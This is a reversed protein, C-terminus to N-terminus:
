HEAIVTARRRLAAAVSQEANFTLKMTPANEQQKATNSIDLDESILDLVEESSLGAISNENIHTVVDGLMTGQKGAAYGVHAVLVRKEGPMEIQVDGDGDMVMRVRNNNPRKQTVSKGDYGISLKSYADMVTGDWDSDIFRLEFKDGGGIEIVKPMRVPIPYDNQIQTRRTIGRRQVRQEVQRRHEPNQRRRRQEPHPLLSRRHTTRADSAEEMLGLFSSKKLLTKKNKKVLKRDSPTRKLATKDNKFVDKAIIFLVNAAEALSSPEGSTMLESIYIREEKSMFYEMGAFLTPDEGVVKRTCFKPIPAPPSHFSNHAGTELDAEFGIEEIFIDGYKEEEQFRHIETGLAKAELRRAEDIADRVEKTHLISKLLLQSETLETGPTAHIVADAKRILLTDRITESLDSRCNPCTLFVKVHCNGDSAESYDDKSSRILSEICTRCFNYGCQRTCQLPHNFDNQEMENLCIPCDELVM